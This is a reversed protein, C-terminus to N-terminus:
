VRARRASSCDFLSWALTQRAWMRLIRKISRWVKRGALAIVFAAVFVGALFIVLQL